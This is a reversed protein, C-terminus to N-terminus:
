GLGGSAPVELGEWLRNLVAKAQSVVTEGLETIAFFRKAKGGRVPTPDSLRSSVWGRKELRILTSYIAGVAIRRGTREELEDRISLGYAEKGLRWIVLLLQQEVDTARKDEM